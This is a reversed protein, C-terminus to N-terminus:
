RAGGEPWTVTGGADIIVQAAYDLGEGMGLALDFLGPPDVM